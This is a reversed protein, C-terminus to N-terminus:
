REIRTPESINFIDRLVVEDCNDEYELIMKIENNLERESYIVIVKCETERYSVRGQSDKKRKEIIAKFIM